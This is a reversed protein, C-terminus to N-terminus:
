APRSVSGSYTRARLRSNCRYYIYIARQSEVFKCLCANIIFNIFSYITRRLKMTENLYVQFSSGNDM